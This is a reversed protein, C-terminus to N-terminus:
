QTIGSLGAIVFITLYYGFIKHFYFYLAILGKLDVHDDHAKRLSIIPLLMDLSYALSNVSTGHIINVNRGCKARWIFIAGFAWVGMFLKLVQVFDHGYGITHKSLWLGFKSFFNGWTEEDLERDKKAILFKRALSVNGQNRLIEALFNYPDPSSHSNILLRALPMFSASNGETHISRYHLGRLDFKVGPQYNTRRIIFAGEVDTGSLDINCTRSEPISASLTTSELTFQGGIKMQAFDIKPFNTIQCSVKARSIDLDGSIRAGRLKVSAFISDAKLAKSGKMLLSGGVVIRNAFFHDTIEARRLVFTGAINANSFDAAAIKSNTFDAIGSVKLNNGQIEHFRGNALILNRGVTLSDLNVKNTRRGNADPRGLADIFRASIGAKATTLRLSLIDEFTSGRLSVDKDFVTTDFNVIGRFCSNELWLEHAINAGSLVFDKEFVAGAIRVGSFPLASKHKNNLLLSIIFDPSLARYTSCKDFAGVPGGLFYYEDFQLGSELYDDIDIVDANTSLCIRNWIWVELDSWKSDANVKCTPMAFNPQDWKSTLHAAYSPEVSFGLLVTLFLVISVLARETSRIITM